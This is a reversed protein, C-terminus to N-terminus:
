YHGFCIWYFDKSHTQRSFAFTQSVKVKFIYNKKGEFCNNPATQTKKPQLQYGSTIGVTLLTKGHLYNASTGLSTWHRPKILEPLMNRLWFWKFSFFKIWSKTIYMTGRSCLQQRLMESISIGDETYSHNSRNVVTGQWWIYSFFAKSSLINYLNLGHLLLM